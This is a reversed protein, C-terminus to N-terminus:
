WGCTTSPSPTPNAPAGATGLNVVTRDGLHAAIWRAADTSADPGVGTIIIGTGRKLLGPGEARLQGISHVSLRESHLRDLPLEAKLAVTFVLKVGGPADGDTM